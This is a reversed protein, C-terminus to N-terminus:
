YSSSSTTTFGVGASTEGSEITDQEGTVKLNDIDIDILSGRIAIVDNSSPVLTFDISSDTNVTSTFTIANITVKGNVYDITGADADKIVRVGSDIIYRRIKGKGDDDFYQINVSDGQVYFGTTTTIGGGDANHGSHPNFFANGFNVVFGESKAIKPKVNKRLRVNTINSLVAQESDDIAKTLNSHRFVADFNNLNTNDFNIIANRVLAELEGKSLDTANSYKFNTTLLIKVLEPSVIVPKVTVM